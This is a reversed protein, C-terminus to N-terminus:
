AAQKACYLSHMLGIVAEAEKSNMSYFVTQAEKRTKV